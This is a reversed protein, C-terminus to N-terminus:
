SQEQISRIKVTLAPFKAVGSEIMERVAQSTSQSFDHAPEDDGEIWLQVTLSIAKHM